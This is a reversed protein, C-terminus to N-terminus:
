LKVARIFYGLSHLAIAGAIAFVVIDEKHENVFSNVKNTFRKLKAFTSNFKITM